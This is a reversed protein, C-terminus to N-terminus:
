KSTIETSIGALKKQTQAMSLNPRFFTKDHERIKAPAAHIAAPSKVSKSEQIGTLIKFHFDVTVQSM